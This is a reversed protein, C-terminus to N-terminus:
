LYRRRDLENHTILIRLTLSPQAHPHPGVRDLFYFPQSMGLNQVITNTPRITEPALQFRPAPVVTRRRRGVPPRHADVELVHGVRM